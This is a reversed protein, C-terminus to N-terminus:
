VHEVAIGGKHVAEVGDYMVKDVVGLIKVSVLVFLWWVAWGSM